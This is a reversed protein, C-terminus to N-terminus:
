PHADRLSARVYQRITIVFTVDGLANVSGVSLRVEPILIPFFFFIYLFFRRANVRGARLRLEPTPFFAFLLYLVFDLPM